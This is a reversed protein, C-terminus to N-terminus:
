ARKNKHHDIDVFVDTTFHIFLNTASVIFALWM